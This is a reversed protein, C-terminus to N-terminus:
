RVEDFYQKIKMAVEPNEKSIAALYMLVSGEYEHSEGLIIIELASRIINIICDEDHYTKCNRCQKLINGISKLVVDEDYTKVDFLPLYELGGDIFEENNKLAYMLQNKAYGILCNNGQCSQCYVDDLCCKSLDNILADYNINNM